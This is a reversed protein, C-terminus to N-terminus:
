RIIEAKPLLPMAMNRGPLKPTSGDPYSVIVSAVDPLELLSLTLADLALEAKEPSRREFFSRSVSVRAVGHSSSLHQLEDGESFLSTYGGFSDATMLHDLVAQETSTTNGLVCPVGILASGAGYYLKGQELNDPAFHEDPLFPLPSIPTALSLNVYDSISEGEVTILVGSINGLSALSNVLSYVTMIEGSASDPKNELFEKSLNLTCTRGKRTVGLLETGEPLPSAYGKEPSLLQEVIYREAGDGAGAALSRYVPLFHEATDDTYYLCIQQRSSGSEDTDLYMDDASLGVSLVIDGAAISVRDINELSCLTLVCCSDALTKELGTMEAYSEDMELVALNDRLVCGLVKIGALPNYVRDDTSASNLADLLADLETQGNGPTVPESRLVPGTTLYEPKIVRYVRLSGEESSPACGAMFALCLIFCILKKM